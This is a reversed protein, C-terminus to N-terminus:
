AALRLALTLIAIAAVWSGAVRLAIGNGIRSAATAAAIMAALVATGAIATGLLGFIAQRLLIADPPSDLGLAVGVVFGLIAPLWAPLHLAAAAALGGLMAATLLADGAATEGIGTALAGLGMVIGLAFATVLALRLRARGAILASAILALLHGPVLAQVAGHLFATVAGDVFVLRQCWGEDRRCALACQSRVSHSEEGKTRTPEFGSSSRFRQLELDYGRVPIPPNEGPHFV